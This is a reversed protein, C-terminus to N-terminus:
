LKASVNPGQNERVVKDDLLSIAKRNTKFCNTQMRVSNEEEGNNHPSYMLIM